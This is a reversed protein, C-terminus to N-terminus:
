VAGVGGQSSVTETIVFVQSGSEREAGQLIGGLGVWSSGM